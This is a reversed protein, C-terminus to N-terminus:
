VEERADREALMMKRWGPMSVHAVKGDCYGPWVNTRLCREWALIARYVELEMAAMDGPELQVISVAFPDFNEQVVFRFIPNEIGLVRMILLSYFASQLGAGTDWMTKAGWQEPNASGGTTKYDYFVNGKDPKWDLRARMWIGTEAEDFAKERWTERWFLSVESEGGVFADEAETGKLQTRLADAIRKANVYQGPLVPILGNSRAEDRAARIANNTWGKPVSGEEGKKKPASPYEEPNIVCIKAGNELLIAHALSGADFLDSNTPEINPNLRPHAARAHMPSCSLLTNAISKSLSPDVCPDAHYEEATMKYAGPQDIV